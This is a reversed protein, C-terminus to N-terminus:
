LLTSCFLGFVSSHWMLKRDVRGNPKKKLNASHYIATHCHSLHTATSIPYSNSINPSNPPCNSIFGLKIIM